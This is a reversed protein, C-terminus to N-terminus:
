AARTAELLGARRLTDLAPAPDLLRGIGDAVRRAWDRRPETFSHIHGIGDAVAVLRIMHDGVEVHDALMGAGLARGMHDAEAVLAQWETPFRLQAQQPTIRETM